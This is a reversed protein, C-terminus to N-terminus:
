VRLTEEKTQSIGLHGKSEKRLYVRTGIGCYLSEEESPCHLLFVLM